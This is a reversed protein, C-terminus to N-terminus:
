CEELDEEEARLDMVKTSIAFVRFFEPALKRGVLVAPVEEEPRTEVLPTESTNVLVLGVLLYSSQCSRIRTSYEARSLQSSGKARQYSSQALIVLRVRTNIGRIVGIHVLHAIVRNSRLVLSRRIIYSFELVTRYVRRPV